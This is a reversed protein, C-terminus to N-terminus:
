ETPKHAKLTLHMLAINNHGPEMYSVSATPRGIMIGRREEQSRRSIRDDQMKMNAMEAVLFM